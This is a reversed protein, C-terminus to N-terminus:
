TARDCLRFADGIRLKCRVCYGAGAGVEFAHGHNTKEGRTKAGHHRACLGQFNWEDDPGGDSLPVVHDVQTAAEHCGDWNCWPHERLWAFRRRRWSARM